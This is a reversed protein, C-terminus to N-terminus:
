RKAYVSIEDISMRNSVVLPVNLQEIDEQVVSLTEMIGDVRSVTFNLRSLEITRM